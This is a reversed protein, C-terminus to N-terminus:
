ESRQLYPSPETMRDVHPEKTWCTIVCLDTTGECCYAYCLGLKLVVNAYNVDTGVPMAIDVAYRSDPSTHTVTDPTLEAVQQSPQKAVLLGPCGLRHGGVGGISLSGPGVFGIM